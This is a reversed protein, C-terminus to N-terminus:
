DTTSAIRHLASQASRYAHNFPDLSHATASRQHGGPLWVYTAQVLFFSWLALFLSGTHAAALIAATFALIGIVLDGVVALFSSHLYLSRALWIAVVYAACYGALSPWWLWLCATAALWAMVTFVRGTRVTSARLVLLLYATAVASIILRLATSTDIVTNIAIFGLAGVASLGLAAAVGPIFGLSKM